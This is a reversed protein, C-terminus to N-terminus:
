NITHNDLNITFTDFLQAPASWSEQPRPVTFYEGKLTRAGANNEITIRLFGFRDDCFNELTVDPFFTNNPVPVPNAKTEVKHLNWYGGAGAVIYPLSNGNSLKRHFRQYNHVHGSLVIDPYVNAAAFANDLFQQMAGSSGHDMDVSYAPYHLSVIIAKGTAKREADANKLESVFWSVQPERIEGHQTDNCYLGLFNAVPTVLTWYVNPQIVTTRSSDGAIPLHRPQTDCFVEMFAALSTPPNPDTPDIDGDHNGAIAFIPAPYHIYPDFFQDLYNKEEGYYYVVDGLHYLFLPLDAPSAGSIFQEEMKEAVLKQDQPVKIGGSDGVTHFVMKSQSPLQQIVKKIDLRYPAPGTPSPLDRYPSSDYKQKAVFQNAQNPKQNHFSFNM